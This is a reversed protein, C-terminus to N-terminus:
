RGPYFYIFVPRGKFSSLSVPDGAQDFLTFSPAKDGASLQAM